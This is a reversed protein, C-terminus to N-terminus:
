PSLHMCDQLLHSFMVLFLCIAALSCARVV